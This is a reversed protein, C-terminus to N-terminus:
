KRSTGYYADAYNPNIRLSQNFDEIAGKMDGSHLRTLGRNINFEVDPANVQALLLILERTTPSNKADARPSGLIVGLVLTAIIARVVKM